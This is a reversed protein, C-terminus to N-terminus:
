EYPLYLGHATELGSLRILHKSIEAFQEDPVRRHVWHHRKDRVGEVLWVAGDEPSPGSITSPQNWYSAHNLLETFARWEFPTLPRTHETKVKGFGFQRKPELMKATIFSGESSHWVRVYVPEHFSPIWTLSYAEDVCDPLAYLPLEQISKFFQPDDDERIRAALATADYPPMCGASVVPPITNTARISICIMTVAIGLAFAILAIGSRLLIRKM